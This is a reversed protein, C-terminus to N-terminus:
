LQLGYNERVRLSAAREQKMDGTYKDLHIIVPDRYQSFDRLQGFLDVSGPGPQRAFVHFLCEAGPGSRFLIKLM